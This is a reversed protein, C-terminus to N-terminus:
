FGDVEGELVDKVITPVPLSSAVANDDNQGAFKSRLKGLM